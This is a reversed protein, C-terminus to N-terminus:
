VAHVGHGGNVTLPAPEPAHNSTVIRLQIELVSREVLNPQNKLKEIINGRDVPLVVNVGHAGNVTKQVNSSTVNGLRKKVVSRGVLNRKCRLKETKYELDVSKVVNVGHVWNVTLQAHISTVIRLRTEQVNVEM